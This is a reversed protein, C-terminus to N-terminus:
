TSTGQNLIRIGSQGCCLSLFVKDLLKMAKKFFEVSCNLAIDMYEPHINYLKNSYM